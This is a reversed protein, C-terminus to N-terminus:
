PVVGGTAARLAVGAVLTNVFQLTNMGAAQAAASCGSMVPATPQLNDILEAARELKTILDPEPATMPTGDPNKLGVGSAQQNALIIAAYCASRLKSGPTAANDALAKAFALDPGTLAMIKQWLDGTSGQGAAQNITGDANRCGPLLNAPDCPLITGPVTRVAGPAAPFREDAPAAKPAGKTQALAPSVALALVIIGIALASTTPNTVAPKVPAAKGEPLLIGIIGGIGLGISTVASVWSSADALHFAALLAGLGLYTSPERLRAGLWTVDKTIEAKDM